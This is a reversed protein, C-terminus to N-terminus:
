RGAYAGRLDRAGRLQKFEVGLALRNEVMMKLDMVRGLERRPVETVERVRPERSPRAVARRHGWSRECGAIASSTSRKRSCIGGRGM